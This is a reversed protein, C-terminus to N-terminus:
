ATTTKQAKTEDSVQVLLDRTGKRDSRNAPAGYISLARDVPLNNM